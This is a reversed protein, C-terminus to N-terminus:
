KRCTQEIECAGFIDAASLQDGCIYKQNESSLWVKEMTDLHTEMTEQLREIKKPSTEIGTIRPDLWVARFYLACGARLTIHQWELFEDVRAQELTDKPYLQPLILSRAGLYRIKDLFICWM